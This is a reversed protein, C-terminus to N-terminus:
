PADLALWRIDSGTQFVHFGFAGIEGADPRQQPGTITFQRQEQPRMGFQESPVGRISFGSPTWSTLRVGDVTCDTAGSNTLNVMGELGGDALAQLAIRDAPLVEMQCPPLLVSRTTLSVTTTDVNSKLHFEFSRPGLSKPTVRITFLASQNEGLIANPGSVEIDDLSSSLELFLGEISLAPVNPDGSAGANRVRITRDVFGKPASTLDMAVTPIDIVTPTVEIRPSTPILDIPIRLAEFASFVRVQGSLRQWTEMRATVQVRLSGGAPVQRGEPLSLSIPGIADFNLSLPVRRGNEIFVERTQTEGRNLVFELGSVNARMVGSGLGRLPVTVKCAGDDSSIVLEEHHLLGDVPRFFLGIPMSAHAPLFLNQELPRMEFPPSLPLVTLRQETALDNRLTFRAASGTSSVEVEGFDISAPETSCRPSEPKACGVLMLLIAARLATM